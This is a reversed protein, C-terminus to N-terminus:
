TGSSEPQRMSLERKLMKLITEALGESVKLVINGIFGDCVIVDANGSFIDKGEINGLLISAQIGSCNLLRKRSNM